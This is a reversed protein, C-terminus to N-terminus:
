ESNVPTGTGLRARALRPCSRAKDIPTAARAAAWTVWTPITERHPATRRGLQRTDARELHEAFLPIVWDRSYANLLALTPNGDLAARMQDANVDM